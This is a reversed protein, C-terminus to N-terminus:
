FLEEYYDKRLRAEGLFALGLRTIGYESGAVLTVVGNQRLYELRYRFESDLKSLDDAPLEVDPYFKERLQQLRRLTGSELMKMIRVCGGSLNQSLTEYVDGAVQRVEVEAAPDRDGGFRELVKGLLEGAAAVVAVIISAEM